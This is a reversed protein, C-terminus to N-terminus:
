PCRQLLKKNSLFNATIPQSCGNIMGPIGTASNAVAPPCFQGIGPGPTLVAQEINEVPIKNNPRAAHKHTIQDFLRRIDEV